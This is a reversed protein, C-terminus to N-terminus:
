HLRGSPTRELYAVEATIVPRAWRARRTIAPPLPGTFPPVPQEVSELLVTLQRLEAISLGSGVASAFELVGPGPLGMLVSGALHARAGTGPLWGGVRLMLPRSTGSRSGTAPAGGPITSRPPGSSCSERMARSAHPPWCRRPTAPSRPRYRCPAPSRCASITWCRAACRTRAATLHDRGYRLVDFVILTVPAAALLGAGLRVTTM